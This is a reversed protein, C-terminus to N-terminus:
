FNDLRAPTLDQSEAERIYQEVMTKNLFGNNHMGEAANRICNIYKARSFEETNTILGLRRWAETPTERFDWAANRNMDVFNGQADLPEVGEGTFGAFSTTSGAEPYPYFVGLPCSVEPMSIAPNEVIGDGNVDGLVAWDSRSAPVPIGEVLNDLMDIVSEMLRSVDLIRIEGKRGNPLEAGQAHSIQRVEFVRLKPGFGKEMLIRANNRKNVLYNNSVWDPREPARTWVKTNMQHGPVFEGHTVKHQCSVKTSM